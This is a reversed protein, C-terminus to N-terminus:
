GVRGEEGGAEEGAEGEGEDEGARLEEGEEERVWSRM